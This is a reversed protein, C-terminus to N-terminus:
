VGRIEGGTKNLLHKVLAAHASEVEDDTLTREPSRYTIRFALSKRDQPINKGKYYDFLEVNEVLDSGFNRLIELVDAATISDDLIVAVDREVAPYRPIPAYTTRSPILGALADLDMECVVIQPKPIKLNLKEVVAPGIEGVFGIRTGDVLLDASKGIHFFTELSPQFAPESIRLEALLAQLAGKVIYFAPVDERWVTPLNERYFIAGLRMKEVPLERGENIYVRGLEYLRIDKIGRSVNYIFNNLLSPVLTTRMLSDEARLPNLVGVSKRREDEQPIALLDLDSPNMFSYNIVESFGSKRMAESIKTLHSGKWGAAGESLATKPLRVPINGFGYIRAVEEVIDYYATIDRRYAPPYAYFWEGRDESGIGIKGLIALVEEKKVETGLLRNILEYRVEVGVPSYKVPYADEMRHITGGGTQQMLIAARNLAGVLFEIDTGREFRYSAESRLGLRRSTRRVSAPAFYASELFINRTDSTVSSGEGGMIGAVAVPSRADWILLAEEPLDREVGDLTLLRRGKGARGVRIKRGSLKDADFAHLPHGLELLVYNTIDVINNNLSRIGCKEIREKLWEPSDGVTLGSILLGTYRNCLEPDLIEVPFDSPPLDGELKTGPLKIPLGFAAAAERAIGLISLCDPRNPTVNVELVMDDGVRESGEVELGAMTLRDAVEEPSATLEVFDKLWEFSVRM